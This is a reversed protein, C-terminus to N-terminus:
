ALAKKILKKGSVIYAGKHIRIKVAKEKGVEKVQEKPLFIEKVSEDYEVTESCGVFKDIKKRLEISAVMEAADEFRVVQGKATVGEYRGKENKRYLM